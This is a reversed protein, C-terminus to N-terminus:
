ALWERGFMAGVVMGFLARGVFRRVSWLPLDPISKSLQFSCSCAWVVYGEPNPFIVCFRGSWYDSSHNTDLITILESM